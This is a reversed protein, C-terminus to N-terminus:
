TLSFYGAILIFVIITFILLFALTWAVMSIAEKKKGELYLLVPKGFVLSSTFGASFVFLLLMAIPILIIDDAKPISSQLSYIFGVILVIYLFTGIADIFARKVVQTM